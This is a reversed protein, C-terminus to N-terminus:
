EGLLKKANNYFVDQMAAEDLGCTLVKQIEVSPHHFPYDTGFMIRDHGVEEYAQRIKVGMPMGSMELYINPFRKAMKLAADIYVGHGHGMHIMVTKVEPFREALLAISWPLSYPPHGSHIFVPLHRSRAMEMVPDVATDDAVFAHRLPNMKIGRFGKGDVYTEVKERCIDAGELPNLYVLPIFRGPYRAAAEAVGQGRVIWDHIEDYNGDFIQVEVKNYINFAAQRLKEKQNVMERIYPILRQGNDTLVVGKKARAFLQVGLEEELGAMMQSIGSQTYNLAEAAKTFSGTECVKLFIEYRNRVERM